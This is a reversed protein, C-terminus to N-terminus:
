PRIDLVPPAAPRRCAACGKISVSGDKVNITVTAAGRTALENNQRAMRATQSYIAKNNRKNQVKATEEDTM